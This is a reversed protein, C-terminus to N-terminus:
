VLEDTVEILKDLYWRANKYDERPDLTKKGDRSLYKIANGKCFGSFEEAGLKAHLIAITEIGCDLYHGPHNVTDQTSQDSPNWSDSLGILYDSSVAFLESLQKLKEFSPERGREFAAYGQATMGIREGVEKQTM